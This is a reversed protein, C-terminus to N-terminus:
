ERGVMARLGPFCAGDEFYVRGLAMLPAVGTKRLAEYGTFCTVPCCDTAENWPTQTLCSPASRACDDLTRTPPELCHMIWRTCRGVATVPDKLEPRLVLQVDPTTNLLYGGGPLLPLGISAPDPPPPPAAVTVSRGITAPVPNCTCTNDGVVECQQSAPCGSPVALPDCPEPSQVVADGCV